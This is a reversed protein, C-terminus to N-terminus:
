TKLYKKKLEELKDRYKAEDSDYMSKADIYEVSRCGGTPEHFHLATAKTMVKLKYGQLHLEYIPLTEERFAVKSLGGPFGGVNHVLEPRYMYSSYLAEIDERSEVDAPYRFIQPHPQLNDIKGSFEWRTRWDDPAMQSQENGPILILGGIATYKCEVDKVFENFLIELHNPDLAIDDDVRFVLPYGNTIAHQLARNHAFAQNRGHGPAINFRVGMKELDQMEHMFEQSDFIFGKTTDDGIIIDFNKFTQNKITFLLRALSYARDKTPIDILIRSDNRIPKPAKKAEEAVILRPKDRGRKKMDYLDMLIDDMAKVAVDVNFEKAVREAGLKGKSKVEEQHEFAYKMCRRFDDASYDAWVGSDGSGPFDYAKSYGTIEVMWGVNNDLFPGRGDWNSGIVPLGTALAELDPMGIGEGHSMNVYCDASSYLEFMEPTTLPKDNTYIFELDRRDKHVSALGDLTGGHNSKIVFKTQGNDPFTNCYEDIMFGTNKRPQAIGIHLFTFPKDTHKRDVYHFDDQSVYPPVVKIPTTVGADMQAKKTFECGTFAYALQNVMNAHHEQYKTSELCTMGVRYKGKVDSYVDVQWSMIQPYDEFNIKKNSEYKACLQRIKPTIVPSQLCGWDKCYIDYGLKELAPVMSDSISSFGVGRGFHTYWSTKNNYRIVRQLVEEWENGIQANSCFHRHYKSAKGGKTNNIENKGYRWDKFSVNLQDIAQTLSAIDYCTHFAQVNKKSEVAVPFGFEWNRTLEPASTSDTAIVPVACMMAEVLPINFGEGGTLSIFVDATNYLERMQDDPLGYDLFLVKHKVGYSEVIKVLDRESEPENVMSHDKPDSKCIWFSDDNTQLFKCVAHATHYIMKRPQHKGVTVIVFKNDMGHARKVSYKDETPFFTEIPVSHYIRSKYHIDGVRAGDLKLGFDTLYVLFKMGQQKKSWIEDPMDNDIPLWHVWKDVFEQGLELYSSVRYFDNLSWVVDPKLQDYAKKVDEKTPYLYDPGKWIQPYLIVKIGKHDVYGNVQKEQGNPFYNGAFQYVEWGRKVLESLVKDAQNGYGTHAFPADTIALIRGRYM